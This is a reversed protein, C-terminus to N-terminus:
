GSRTWDRRVFAERAQPYARRFYLATSGVHAGIDLITQPRLVDLYAAPYNQGFLARRVHPEAGPEALFQVPKGRGDLVFDLLRSRSV